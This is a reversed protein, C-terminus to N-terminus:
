VVVVHLPPVLSWQQPLKRALVHVLEIVSRLGELARVLLCELGEESHKVTLVFQNVCTVVRVPVEVRRAYDVVQGEEGELCLFLYKTLVSCLEEFDVLGRRTVTALTLSMSSNFGCIASTSPTLM